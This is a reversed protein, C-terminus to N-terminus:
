YHRSSPGSGVDTGHLALTRADAGGQASPPITLLEGDLHRMGLTVSLDLETNPKVEGLQYIRHDFSVLLKHVGPAVQEIRFAGNNDAVVMNPGVAITAGALPLGNAQHVIGAVVGGAGPPGIPNPTDVVPRSEACGAAAIAIAVAVLSNRM